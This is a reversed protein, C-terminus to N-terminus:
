DGATPSVLRTSETLRLRRLRQLRGSKTIHSIRRLFKAKRLIMQAETPVRRRVRAVKKKRRLKAV